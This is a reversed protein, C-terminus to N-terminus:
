VITLGHGSRQTSSQSEVSCPNFVVWRLVSPHVRRMGITSPPLEQPYPLCIEDAHNLPSSDSPASARSSGVERGLQLLRCLPAVGTTVLQRRAPGLVVSRPLFRIRLGRPLWDVATPNQRTQISVYVSLSDTVELLSPLYVVGLSVRAFTFGIPICADM